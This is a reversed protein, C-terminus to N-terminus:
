SILFFLGTGYTIFQRFVRRGCRLDEGGEFCLVLILRDTAIRGAVIWTSSGGSAASWRGVALIRFMSSDGIM